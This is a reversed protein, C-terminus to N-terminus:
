DEMLSHRQKENSPRSDLLDYATVSGQLMWSALSFTPLACTLMGFM